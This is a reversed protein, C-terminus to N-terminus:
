SGILDGVKDKQLEEAENSDTQGGLLCFSSIMRSNMWSIDLSFGLDRDYLFHQQFRQWLSSSSM